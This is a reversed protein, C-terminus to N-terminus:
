EDVLKSTVTADSVYAILGQEVVRYIFTAAEFDDPKKLAEDVMRLMREIGRTPYKRRLSMLMTRLENLNM